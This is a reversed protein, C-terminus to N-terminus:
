GVAPDRLPPRNFSSKNSMVCAKLRHQGDVLDGKTDFKISEGNLEWDNSEMQLALERARHPNLGRVNNSKGLWDAAVAPTITIVETSVM